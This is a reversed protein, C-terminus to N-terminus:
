QTIGGDSVGSQSANGRSATGALTRDALVADRKEGQIQRSWYEGILLGSPNDASRETDILRIHYEEVLQDILEHENNMSRVTRVGFATYTLPEDKSEEIHSLKFTSSGQEEELKGVTDNKEMATLASHRLNTTMQNMADAWNQSLTHPDYDLYRVLFSKIFAEKEYEDPAANSSNPARVSPLFRAKAARYPTIVSAEGQSNVRIVTPPEMRVFLFGVVAVLSVLGMVGAIVISRNSYARLAGDMEYFKPAENKSKSKAKMTMPEMTTGSLAALLPSRRARRSGGVACCQNPVSLVPRSRYVNINFFGQPIKTDLKPEVLDTSSLQAGSKALVDRVTTSDTAFVRKQGDMYLSVL